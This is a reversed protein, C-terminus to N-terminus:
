PQSSTWSSGWTRSHPRAPPWTRCRSHPSVAMPPDPVEDRGSYQFSPFTSYENVQHRTFTFCTQEGASGKIVINWEEMISTPGSPHLDFHLDLNITGLAPPINDKGLFDLHNATLIATGGILNGTLRANRPKHKWWAPSLGLTVM